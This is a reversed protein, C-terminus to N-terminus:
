EESGGKQGVIEPETAEDTAEVVDPVVVSVIATNEDELIEYNKGDKLDAVMIADGIALDSVDVTIEEPIDNPKARVSIEFLPQQLIGGEKQGAAEGVVHVPVLVDMEQKMDVAFFDAHTLGDKLPDVQYDHLMVEVNKNELELKIIANRGEDRVLKLLAISNVSIAKPEHDKGYIVAPVEGSKRLANTTSKKLDTRLKATLEVSM